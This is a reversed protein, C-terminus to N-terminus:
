WNNSSSRLAAEADTTTSSPTTTTTPHRSSQSPSLVPQMSGKVSALRRFSRNRPTLGDPPPSSYECNNCNEAQHKKRGKLFYQQVKGRGKVERVGRSQFQFGGPCETNVRNFFAESVNIAQSVSDTEMRSALNVTDGVLVWRPRMVGIVGALVPGTHIGVRISLPRKTVPDVVRQAALRMELAMDAMRVAHGEDGFLGGAVMYADGITEVKYLNFRGDALNDFKDYLNNLMEMILRPEKQCKHTMSTFGVIDSFLVTVSNYADSPPPMGERLACVVHRPLVEYLLREAEMDRILAIFIIAGNSQRAESISLHCLFQTGDKRQGPVERGIGIIKKEGTELYHQMFGDHIRAMQEPMLINVKERGILEEASWQFIREAARNFTLIFGDSSASIFAENTNAIVAELREKELMPCPEIERTPLREIEPVGSSGRSDGSLMPCALSPKFVCAGAPLAPLPSATASPTMPCSSCSAATAATAATSKDNCSTTTTEASPGRVVVVKKKKEASSIKAAASTAEEEDEGAEEEEAKTPPPFLRICNVMRRWFAPGAANTNHAM